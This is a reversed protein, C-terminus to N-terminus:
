ARAMRRGLGMARFLAFVGILALVTYSMLVLEIGSRLGAFLSLVGFSYLLIRTPSNGFTLLLTYTAAIRGYIFGFLFVGIWGFSMYAEGIISTSLSVGREGVLAPFDIGADMPKGAWLVRPVPRAAVWTVYKMYVFDHVSPILDIMQGVRLINDDVRVIDLRAHGDGSFAAGYGVNRYDLLWQLLVILLFAGGAGVVIARLRAKGWRSLVWTLIAAGLVVGVIRRSGAQGLFVLMIVSFGSAVFLRFSLMRRAQQAMMATLAPVVYGFYACHDLIADWGGIDGRSWPASWRNGRLAGIMVFPNFGCPLAFRTIGIAFCLVIAAFLVGDSLHTDATRRMLRPVRWPRLFASTWIGAAFVGVALLALRMGERSVDALEYSGQLLDLLLWYVLGVLLLHEARLLALPNRIASYVPIALLALTLM